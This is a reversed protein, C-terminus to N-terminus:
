KQKKLGKLLKNVSGKAIGLHKGIESQPVDHRFLEIALLHQLTREIHDVKKGLEKYEKDM